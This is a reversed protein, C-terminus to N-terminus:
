ASQGVRHSGGKDGSQYDEWRLEEHSKHKSINMASISQLKISGGDNEETTATYAVVRSEEHKSGFPLQGGCITAFTPM